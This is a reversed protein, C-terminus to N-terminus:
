SAQANAQNKERKPLNAFALVTFYVYFHGETTDMLWSNALCGLAISLVVAQAIWATERPLTYSDRWHCYFLMLLLALGVVGFQVAINLYENHPNHSLVQSKPQLEAYEYSFSGTGAGLLPNKQVLEWSNKAFEMRLGVSTLSNGRHYQKIDHAIDDIRSNFTTSLSFAAIVLIAIGGAALLLGRWRLTQWLFLGALAAFVFYGSRGQSIFFVNFTIALILLGYLWLHRRSQWALIALLYTAFALLFNTQIHSKFIAGYDGPVDHNWWGLAKAYSLALTILMAAIFGYIAARRWKDATFLLLLFPALLFKAYKIIMALSASWPASSYTAGLLFLAFFGLMLWAMRCRRIIQWHQAWEGALLSMIVAGVMFIDTFTTSIPLAFAVAVALCRSLASLKIQVQSGSSNVAATTANM